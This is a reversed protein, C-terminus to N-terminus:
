RNTCLNMMGRAQCRMWSTEFVTCTDFQEPDIISYFQLVPYESPCLVVLILAVSVSMSMLRFFFILVLPLFYFVPIHSICGEM